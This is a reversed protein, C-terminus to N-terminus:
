YVPNAHEWMYDFMSNILNTILSDNIIIGMANKDKGSYFGCKTGFTSMIANLRLQYDLQRSEKLLVKSTIDINDNQESADFLVRMRIKKRVRKGIYEDMYKYYDEVYPEIARRTTLERILTGKKYLRADNWAAYGKKGEFILINSSKYQKKAYAKLDRIFSELERRNKKVEAEKQKQLSLLKDAPYPLFKQNRKEGVRYILGKQELEALSRYSSSKDLNSSLVVARGTAEGVRLLYAYIKIENETLGLSQLSMIYKM